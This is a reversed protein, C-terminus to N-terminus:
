RRPAAAAADEASAAVAARLCRAADAAYGMAVEKLRAATVSAHKEALAFFSARAEPDPFLSAVKEAFASGSANEKKEKEDRFDFASTTAAAFADAVGDADAAMARVRAGILRARALAISAPTPTYSGKTADDDDEVFVFSPSSWAGSTELAAAVDALHAVIAAAVDAVRAACERRAPELSSRLAAEISEKTVLSDEADEAFAGFFTELAKAAAARAAAEADARMSAALLSADEGPVCGGARAVDGEDGSLDRESDNLHSGGNTLADGSSEVDLAADVADLVDPRFASSSAAAAAAAPGETETNSDRWAEAALADAADALTELTELHAACGREILATELFVGDADAIAAFARNGDADLAKELFDFTRSEVAAVARKAVSVSRSAVNLVNPDKTVAAAATELSQMSRKAMAGFASWLNNSDDSDDGDDGTKHRTESNVSNSVNAASTKTAAADTNESRRDEGAVHKALTGLEKGVGRAHDVVDRALDSSAAARVVATVSGLSAGILSGFGSQVRSNSSEDGFVNKMFNTEKRDAADGGGGGRRLTWAPDMETEGGGFRSDFTHSHSLTSADNENVENTDDVDDRAVFANTETETASSDFYKKEEEGGTSPSAAEDAGRRLPVREGEVPSPAPFADELSVYADAAPSVDASPAGERTPSDCPLDAAKPSSLSLVTMEEAVPSAPEVATEVALAPPEVSVASPTPVSPPAPPAEAPADERAAEVGVPAEAVDPAERAEEAPAAAVVERAPTSDPTTEALFSPTSPQPTAGPGEGAEDDSSDLWDDIEDDDM